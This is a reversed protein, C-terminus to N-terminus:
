NNEGKEEYVNEGADNSDEGENDFSIPGTVLYDGPKRKDRSKPQNWKNKKAPTNNVANSPRKLGKDQPNQQYDKLMSYVSFFLNKNAEMIKDRDVIRPLEVPRTVYTLLASEDDFKEIVFSKSKFINSWKNKLLSEAINGMLKRREQINLNIEYALGTFNSIGFTSSESIWYVIWRSDKVVDYLLIGQENSSAM